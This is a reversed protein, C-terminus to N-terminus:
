QVKLIHICTRLAINESKTSQHEILVILMNGVLFALDNIRSKYLANDLTVIEVPTEPPYDTKAIANLASLATEKQNFLLSFVTDKYTRNATVDGSQELVSKHKAM